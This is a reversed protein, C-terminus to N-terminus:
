LLDRKRLANMLLRYEHMFHTRHPSQLEPRGFLRILNQFAFKRQEKNFRVWKPIFIPLFLKGSKEEIFAFVNLIAIPYPSGAELKRWDLDASFLEKGLWNTFDKYTPFELAELLTKNHENVLHDDKNRRGFDYFHSIREHRNLTTSAM